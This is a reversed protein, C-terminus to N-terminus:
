SEGEFSNKMLKTAYRNLKCFSAPMPGSSKLMTETLVPEKGSEKSSAYLIVM